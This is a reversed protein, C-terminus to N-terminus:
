AVVPPAALAPVVGALVAVLALASLYPAAEVGPNAVLPQGGVLRWTLVATAVGSATVVLEAAGWPDPRYRTREVRRGASVLGAIAVATGAVLM